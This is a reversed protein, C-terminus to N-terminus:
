VNSHCKEILKPRNSYSLCVKHADKHRRARGLPWWLIKINNNNEFHSWISPASWYSNVQSSGLNGFRRRCLSVAAESRRITMILTAFQRSVLLRSTFCESIIPQKQASQRVGALFSSANTTSSSQVEAVILSLEKASITKLYPWLKTANNTCGRTQASVQFHIKQM